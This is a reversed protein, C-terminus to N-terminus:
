KESEALVELLRIMLHKRDAKVSQLLEAARRVYRDASVPPKKEEFTFLSTIPVGLAEALKALTEVGINEHGREFNGLYKDDIGAEGALDELTLHHQLRLHRVRKGLQQSAKGMIAPEERPITSSAM